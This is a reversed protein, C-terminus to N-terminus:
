WITRHPQRLKQIGLLSVKRRSWLIIAETQLIAKITEKAFVKHSEMCYTWCIYHHHLQRAPNRMTTISKQQCSILDGWRSSPHLLWLEWCHSTTTSRHKDAAPDIYFTLDWGATVLFLMPAHVTFWHPPLSTSAMKSLTCQCALILSNYM